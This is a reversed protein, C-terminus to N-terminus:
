GSLYIYINKLFGQWTAVTEEHRVASRVWIFFIFFVQWTAVSEEGLNFFYFFLFVQWTAVTEEYRVARRVWIFFLFYFCFGAVNGRDRRAAGCEEYLCVDVGGGGGM